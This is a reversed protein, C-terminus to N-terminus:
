FSIRKDLGEMVNELATNRHFLNFQQFVMATNQRLNILEQKTKKKV